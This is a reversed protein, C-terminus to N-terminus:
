VLKFEIRKRNADFYSFAEEKMAPVDKMAATYRNLEKNDNEEQKVDSFGHYAKFDFKLHAPCTLLFSSTKVPVDFQTYVRDFVSARMKRTYYYEIESGMEV